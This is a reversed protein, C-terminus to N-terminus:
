YRTKCYYDAAEESTMTEFISRMSAAASHIDESRYGLEELALIMYGLNANNSRKEFFQNQLKDLTLQDKNPM